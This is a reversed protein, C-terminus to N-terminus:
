ACFNKRCVDSSHELVKTLLLEKVQDVRQGAYTNKDVECVSPATHEGKYRQLHGVKVEELHDFKFFM